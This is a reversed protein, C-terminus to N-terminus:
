CPASAIFGRDHALEPSLGGPGAHGPSYPDVPLVQRADAPYLNPERRNRCALRMVRVLGFVSALGREHGTEVSGHRIGAASTVQAIREERASDIAFTAELLRRQLERGSEGIAKEREGHDLEGADAAAWALMASFQEATGALAAALERGGPGRERGREGADGFCFGGRRDETM